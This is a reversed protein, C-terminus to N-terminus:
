KDDLRTTIGKILHAPLNRGQSTDERVNRRALSANITLDPVSASHHQRRLMPSPNIVALPTHSFKPMEFCHGFEKAASIHKVKHPEVRSTSRRKSAPRKKVPSPSYVPDAYEGQFKPQKSRRSMFAVKKTTPVV